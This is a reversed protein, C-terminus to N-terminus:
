NETLAPWWLLCTHWKIPTAALVKRSAKGCSLGHHAIRCRTFCQSMCERSFPERCPTKPPLLRPKTFERGSRVGKPARDATSLQNMEVTLPM